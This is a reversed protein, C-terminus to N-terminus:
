GEAEPDPGASGGAGFQVAGQGAGVADLEAQGVIGVRDGAFADVAALHFVQVHVQALHRRDGPLAEEAGEVRRHDLDRAHVGVAREDGGGRDAVVLGPEVPGLAHDELDVGPLVREQLAHVVEVVAGGQRRVAHGDGQDPRVVTDALRGKAAVRVLDHGHHAGVRGVAVRLEGRGVGGGGDGAVQ